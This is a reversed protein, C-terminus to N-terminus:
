NRRWIDSPRLGLEKAIAKRLRESQRKGAIVQHIVPVSVGYKRAIETQTMERDIMRKLIKKKVEVDSM